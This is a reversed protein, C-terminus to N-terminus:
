KRAGALSIRHTADAGHIEAFAVVMPCGGRLDISLPAGDELGHKGYGDFYVELSNDCVVVMGSLKGVNFELSLDAEPEVREAYSDPHVAVLCGDAVAYLCNDWEAQWLDAPDFKLMRLVRPDTALKFYEGQQFDSARM